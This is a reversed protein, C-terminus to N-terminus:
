IMISPLTGDPSCLNLVLNGRARLNSRAGLFCKDCHLLALAHPSMGAQHSCHMSSCNGFFPVLVCSHILLICAFCVALKAHPNHTILMSGNLGVCVM